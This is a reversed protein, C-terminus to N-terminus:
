NGLSNGVTASRSSRQERWSECKSGWVAENESPLGTNRKGSFIHCRVVWPWFEEEDERRKQENINWFIFYREEKKMAPFNEAM